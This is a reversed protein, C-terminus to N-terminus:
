STSTKQDRGADRAAADRMIKDALNLDDVIGDVYSLNAMTEKDHVINGAVVIAMDPRRVRIDDILKQLGKSSHRGACSLGILSRDDKTIKTCIEDHEMGILLGVDWGLRRFHDAAMIVGLTHTEGPVAAFLGGHGGAGTVQAHSAPITRLIAQIRATALTVEAFPLEDREWQEGLERAAPALHDLCLDQISLGLRLLEAVMEEALHHHTDALAYAMKTVHPLPTEAMAAQSAVKERADLVVKAMALRALKAFPDEVPDTPEASVDGRRPFRKASDPQDTM